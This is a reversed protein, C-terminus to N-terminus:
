LLTLPSSTRLPRALTMAKAPREDGRGALAGESPSRVTPFSTGLAEYDRRHNHTTICSWRARVLLDGSFSFALCHRAKPSRSFPNSGEVDVKALHCEVM